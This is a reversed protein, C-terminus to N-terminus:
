RGVSLGISAEDAASAGVVVLEGAALDGGVVATVNADGPEYVVYRREPVGGALVWILGPEGRDPLGIVGRPGASEGSAAVGAQPRFRLAANPVKLVGTIETVVISLIATMGPFLLLEPNDASVIVTYTVVNQVILPAKRIEEVRGHFIRDPYADVAFSVRQGVRIRGIDAQDLQAYVEMNRLDRALTFLTPAELSAAVTQGKEISRNIVVGDIPARITTRELDVRALNLAARRRKVEAVATQLGAISMKVAAEASQMAATGVLEQTEAARLLAAASEARAEARDIDVGAIASERELAALRTLQRQAEERQARVSETEATRVAASAHATRLDAEAKGLAAEQLLMNAEAIELGAEAEMVVAEYARPDLRALAEGQRVENNFDALVEFIQGSLQSGINVQGVPTVTGTATVASTIDGREVRATMYNLQGDAGPLVALLLFVSIVIGAGALMWRREVRRASALETDSPPMM